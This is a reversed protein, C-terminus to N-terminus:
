DSDPDDNLALWLSQASAALSDEGHDELYDSACSVYVLLEQYADESMTIVKDGHITTGVTVNEKYDM